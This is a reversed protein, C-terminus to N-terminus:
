GWQKLMYKNEGIPHFFKGLNKKDHNEKGDSMQVKEASEAERCRQTFCEVSSKLNIVSEVKYGDVTIQKFEPQFVFNVELVNDYAANAFHRISETKGVQRAGKVLLPKHDPNAHWEELFRDFKRRLYRM